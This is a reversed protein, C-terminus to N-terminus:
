LGMATAFTECVKKWDCKGFADKFWFRNCSIAEYNVPTEGGFIPTTFLGGVKGRKHPVGYNEWYDVATKGKTAHVVDDMWGWVQIRDEVDKISKFKM